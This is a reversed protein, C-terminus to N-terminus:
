KLDSIDLTIADSPPLEGVSMSLYYTEDGNCMEILNQGDSEINIIQDQLIKKSSVIAFPRLSAVMEADQKSPSECIKRGTRQDIVEWFKTIMMPLFDLCLM